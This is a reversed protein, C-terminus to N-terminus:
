SEKPWRREIEDTAAVIAEHQLDCTAQLEANAARLRRIEVVLPHIRWWAPQRSLEEYADLQADTLPETM